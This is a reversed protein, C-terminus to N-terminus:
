SERVVVRFTIGDPYEDAEALAAIRQVSRMSRYGAGLAADLSHFGESTKVRVGDVRIQYDYPGWGVLRNDPNNFVIMLYDVRRKM